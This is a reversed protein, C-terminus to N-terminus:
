REKDDWVEWRSWLWGFIVTLAASILLAPFYWDPLFDSDMICVLMATAFGFMATLAEEIIRM